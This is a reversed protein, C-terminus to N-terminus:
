SSGPPIGDKNYDKLRDREQQTSHAPSDDEKPAEKKDDSM